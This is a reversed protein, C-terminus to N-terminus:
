QNIEGADVFQCLDLDVITAHRDTRAHRDGSKGAVVHDNSSISCERLSSVSDGSRTVADQPGDPAIQAEVCAANVVILAFPPSARVGITELVAPVDAM